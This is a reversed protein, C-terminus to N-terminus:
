DFIHLATAKFIAYVEKGPALQLEEKSADTVYASIQINGVELKVENVKSGAVVEVVRAKFHNRASSHAPETESLIIDQPRLMVVFSEREVERPLFIENGNAFYREGKRKVPIFNAKGLFSAVFDNPPSKILEYPKSYGILRGNELIGIRDSYYIAEELDHTVLIIPLLFIERIEKILIRLDEKNTPDLFNFPEDMLLLLPRTAIARIISIRQRQGASLQHPYRDLLDSIKLREALNNVFMECAKLGFLLNEKVTLHPFLYPSQYVIAIDREWPPLKTIDNGYLYIKGTQLKTFGMLAELFTTKGSGSPGLISVMEHTEMEFEPIDLFFDGKKVKLDKVKLM